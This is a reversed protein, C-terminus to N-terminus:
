PLARVYINTLAVPPTTGLDSAQSSFAVFGGTSNTSPSDSPGNGPDNTNSNDQSALSTLNSQRDRVYIQQGTVAPVGPALLNTGASVFSVFRGSSSISPTRSLGNAPNAAVNNDASVLSTQSLNRDRVYAQQGTVSPIGPALLNTALSDFAVITGDGSISPANSAGNGPNPVGNNDV